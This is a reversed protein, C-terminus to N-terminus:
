DDAAVKRVAADLAHRITPALPTVIIDSATETWWYTAWQRSNRDRVMEWEDGLRADLWAVLDDIGAGAYGICPTDEAMVCCVGEHHWCYDSDMWWGIIEEIPRETM